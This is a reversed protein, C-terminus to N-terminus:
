AILFDDVTLVTNVGFTAVIEASGAGTGDADYRLTGTSMDYLVHDDADAAAAGLHFESEALQGSSLAAFVNSHLLIKDEGTTFDAVYDQNNPGLARDFVFTDAGGNGVLTDNGERGILTNNGGSGSLVNDLGNGIGNATIQKLLVLDEVHATLAYSYGSRVTDHGADYGEIITAGERNSLYRPRLITYTDDGDMGLFTQTAAFASGFFENNGSNGRVEQVPTGSTNNFSINATGTMVVKEIRHNGGWNFSVSQFAVDIEVSGAYSDEIVDNVHDVYYVDAGEGGDMTDANEGGILTDSGAGGFLQDGGVGGHLLDAGDGGFLSDASDRGLLFDDGSGGYLSDAANGGDLWDNGALGNLTDIGAGGYIQDGDATGTGTLVDGFNTGNIIMFEGDM